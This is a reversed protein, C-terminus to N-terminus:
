RGTGTKPKASPAVEPGDGPFDPHKTKMHRALQQFTRNCCPCTGASVRKKLKTVVGKTARLSAEAQDRQAVVRARYDREAELERRLKAAEGEGSIIWSHGLPCYVGVQEGGNDRKRKNYDYMEEPIAHRMGCWCSVTVLTGCYDLTSM